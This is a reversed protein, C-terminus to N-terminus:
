SRGEVIEIFLDELSVRTCSADTVGLRDALLDRAQDPELAFLAHLAPGRPRAGICPKLARLEPVGIGNRPTVVALSYAQRLTDIDNDLILCGDHILIVRRAIREVDLMNHSSFVIATGERNLLGIAVELFERRAAPDLGGAPEDLLLLEPRHAIACLVAVQRAQGKSLTAIPERGNLRFREVLQSAMEEDWTPFLERHMAIVECVRLHAPLIHDESVYGVRRKIEVAQKWPDMGFVRVTGQHPHILGMAIRLLTTKGAGNRGVLGVVEGAAVSLSVGHLVMRGKEYARHINELELVKM